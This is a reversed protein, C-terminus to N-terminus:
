LLNIILNLFIPRSCLIQLQISFQSFSLTCLTTTFPVNELQALTTLPTGCPDTRPGKSKLKNILSRSTPM